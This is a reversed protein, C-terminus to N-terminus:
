LQGDDGRGAVKNQYNTWTWIVSRPAFNRKPTARANRWRVHGASPTAERKALVARAPGRLCGARGRASVASFATVSDIRSTPCRAGPPRADQRVDFPPM